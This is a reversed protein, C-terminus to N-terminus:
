VTLRGIFLEKKCALPERSGWQLTVTAEKLHLTLPSRGIGGHERTDEKCHPSRTCDIIILEIRGVEKDLVEEVIMIHMGQSEKPIAQIKEPVYHPPLVVLIDGPM